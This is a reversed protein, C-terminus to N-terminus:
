EKVAVLFTEEGAEVYEIAGTAEESEPNDRAFDRLKRLLDAFDAKIETIPNEHGSM